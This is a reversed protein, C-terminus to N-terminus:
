ILCVTREKKQSLYVKMAVFDSFIHLPIDKEYSKFKAFHWLHIFKIVIARTSHETSPSTADQYTMFYVVRICVVHKRYFKNEEM